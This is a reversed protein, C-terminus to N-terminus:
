YSLLEHPPIPRIQPVPCPHLFQRLSKTLFHLHAPAWDEHIQRTGGLRIPSKTPFNERFSKGGKISGTEIRKGLLNLPHRGEHSCEVGPSSESDRKIAGCIKWAEESSPIDGRFRGVPRIRVSSHVDGKGM